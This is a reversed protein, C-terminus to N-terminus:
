RWERKLLQITKSNEDDDPASLAFSLCLTRFIIIIIFFYTDRYWHRKIILFFFFIAIKVHSILSSGPVPASKTVYCENQMNYLFYINNFTEM